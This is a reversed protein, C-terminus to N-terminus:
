LRGWGSGGKLRRWETEERSRTSREERDDRWEEGMAMSEGGGLM